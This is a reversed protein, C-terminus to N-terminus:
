IDKPIDKSNNYLFILSGDEIVIEAFYNSLELSLTMEFYDDLNPKADDINIGQKLQAYAERQAIRM